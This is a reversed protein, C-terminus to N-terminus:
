NFILNKKLYRQTKQVSMKKLQQKFCKFCIGREKFTRLEDMQHKTIKVIEGCQTCIVPVSKHSIPKDLKLTKEMESM